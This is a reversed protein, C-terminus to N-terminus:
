DVIVDPHQYELKRVTKVIHPCKRTQTRLFLPFDSGLGLEEESRKCSAESQVFDLRFQLVQSELEQIRGLIIKKYFGEFLVPLAGAVRNFGKHFICRFSYPLFEVAGDLPIDAVALWETDPPFHLFSATVEVVHREFMVDTGDEIDM